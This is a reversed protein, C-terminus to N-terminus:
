VEHAKTHKHTIISLIIYFAITSAFGAIGQIACFTIAALIILYRHWNDAFKFNKFKLSFMRLSCVMMYSMIISLAVIVWVDFVPVKDATVNWESYQVACLGIWFIANAPIPMGLFAVSQTTDINFRALRLVGCVAILLAVYKLPTGPNFFDMMQFVLLAPALGFSVSDCLSDLEKGIASTAHLLRAVLGDFFDFVAALAIMIFAVQYGYILGYNVTSNFAYICALIGSVLNLCTIANPINNKITQLIKM